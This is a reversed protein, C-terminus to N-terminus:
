RPVRIVVPEGPRPEISLKARHLAKEHETMPRGCLARVEVALEHVGRLIEQASMAPQPLAPPAKPAPSPALSTIGQKAALFATVAPSAGVSVVSSSHTPHLSKM